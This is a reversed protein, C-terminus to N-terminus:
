SKIIKNKIFSFAKIPLFKKKAFCIIRKSLKKSALKNKVQRVMFSTVIIIKRDLYGFPFFRKSSNKRLFCALKRWSANVTKGLKKLNTKKKVFRLFKLLSAILVWLLIVIVFLILVAVCIELFDDVFTPSNKLKLCFLESNPIATISIVRRKLRRLKARRSLPPPMIFFANGYKNPGDLVDEMFAVASAALAGMGSSQERTAFLAAITAGLHASVFLTRATKEVKGNGAAIFSVAVVFGKLPSLILKPTVTANRSVVNYTMYTAAQLGGNMFLQNVSFADLVGAEYLYFIIQFQYKILTKYSFGFILHNKIPM